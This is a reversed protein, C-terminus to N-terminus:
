FPIDDCEAPGLSEIPIDCEEALGIEVLRRLLTPHKRALLGMRKRKGPKIRAVEMVAEALERVSSIPSQALRMLRAINGASINSQRMFGAIEQTQEMEDRDERPMRACERCVQTRHGGGSFSENSRVRGCLRCYRGM